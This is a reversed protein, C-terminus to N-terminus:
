AQTTRPAVGPRAPAPIKDAATSSPRTSLAANPLHHASGTAASIRAVEATRSPRFAHRPSGRQAGPAWPVPAPSVLQSRPQEEYPHRVRIPRVAAERIERADCRRDLPARADHSVHRALGSPVSRRCHGPGLYPRVAARIAPGPAVAPPATIARGRYMPPGCGDRCSQSRGEIGAELQRSRHTVGNSQGRGTPRTVAADTSTLRM